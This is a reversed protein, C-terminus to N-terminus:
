EMAHRSEPPLGLKRRHRDAEKADIHYINISYGAKAIPVHDKFYSFDYDEHTSPEYWNGHGDPCSLSDLGDLFCVDIAFYGSRPGLAEPPISHTQGRRRPGVPPAVFEIGLLAPDMPGAHALHIPRAEPHGRLWQRLFILDQGWSSDSKALYQYGHSPGGTIENFYSISHPYVLLSSLVGWAALAFVMANGWSSARSPSRVLKGCLIFLFPLMPLAYRSHMGIASGLVLALALACAPLTIQLEDRWPAIRNSAAISVVCGAAVLALYGLPLKLLLAIFHFYWWGHDSWTGNLYSLYGREFDVKQLDIGYVYDEPLPVPWDSLFTSAFRNGYSESGQRACQTGALTSSQFLYSGLPRCTGDFVYGTNLVIVSGCYIVVLMALETSAARWSYNRTSGRCILFLIMWMPYLVLMTLKTLQALGLALSVSAAGRWSPSRLWRSYLYSALVGLAAAPADPTMLSGHGLVYPCFVWLTAALLGAAQSRYVDSAWRCCTWTGILVLPLCLLRGLIVLTEFRSGMGYSTDIGVGYEARSHPDESYQTYVCKEGTCYAPLAAIMRVLPPNVRFLDFRLTELHSLGSPLHFVELHTPSHLVASWSLLVGQLLLLYILGRGNRIERRLVGCSRDCFAGVAVTRGASGTFERSAHSTLTNVDAHARHPRLLGLLM